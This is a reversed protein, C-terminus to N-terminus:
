EETPAAAAPSDLAAERGPDSPPLGPTTVVASLFRIDRILM